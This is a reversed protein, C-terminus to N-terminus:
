YTCTMLPIRRYLLWSAEKHISEALLNKVGLFSLLTDTWYKQGLKTPWAGLQGSARRSCGMNHRFGYKCYWLIYEVWGVGYKCYWLINWVLGCINHRWPVIECFIKYVALSVSVKIEPISRRILSNPLPTQLTCSWPNM